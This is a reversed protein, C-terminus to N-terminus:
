IPNGAADKYTVSVAFDSATVAPIPLESDLEGPVIFGIPEISGAVVELSPVFTPVGERVPFTIKIFPVGPLIQFGNIPDTRRILVTYLDQTEGYSAFLIESKDVAGNLFTLGPTSSVDVGNAPSIKIRFGLFSVKKDSFDRTLSVQVDATKVTREIGSGSSGGGCGSMSLVLFILSMLLNRQM